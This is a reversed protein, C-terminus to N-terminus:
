TSEDEPREPLAPGTIMWLRALKVEQKKASGKKSSWVHLCSGRLGGDREFANGNWRINLQGDDGGTEM